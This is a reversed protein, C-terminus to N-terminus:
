DSQWLGKGEESSASVTLSSKWPADEWGKRCGNKFRVLVRVQAKELVCAEGVHALTPADVEVAAM